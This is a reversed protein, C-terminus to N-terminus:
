PKEHNLYKKHAVTDFTKKDYMKLHESSRINQGYKLDKIKLENLIGCIKKNGSMIDNPWKIKIDPIQLSKLTNFIFLSFIVNIIFQNKINFNNPFFIISFALNKEPESVWSNGRQGKGNTQNFTYAIHIDKKILESYNIKLYDNTSDIASLKIINM